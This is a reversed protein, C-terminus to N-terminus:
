YITEFNIDLNANKISRHLQKAAQEIDAFAGFRNEYWKLFRMIRLAHKKNSFCAICKDNMMLAHIFTKATENNEINFKNM